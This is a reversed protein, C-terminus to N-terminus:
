ALENLETGQAEGTENVSRALWRRRSWLRNCGTPILQLFAQLNKRFQKRVACYVIFNVSSNILVAFNSISITILFDCYSYDYINVYVIGRLVMPPTQCITFILMILLMALTISGEHENHEAPPRSTCINARQKRAKWLRVILIANLIALIFLPLLLVFILYMLGDYVDRYWQFRLFWPVSITDSTNTSNDSVTDLKRELITPICYLTCLVVMVSVQIYVRRITCFRPAHLPKCIVIFGNWAILVTMWISWMHSVKGLPLLALAAVNYVPHSVTDPLYLMLVPTAVGTTLLYLNDAVALCQLMYNAVRHRKERQMVVFSLTNGVFGFLWIPTWLIGFVIFRSPM